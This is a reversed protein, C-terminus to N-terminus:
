NDRHRGMRGGGDGSPQPNSPQAANQQPQQQWFNGRTIRDGNPM